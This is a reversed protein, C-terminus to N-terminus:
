PSVDEERNNQDVMVAKFNEKFDANGKHNLVVDAYSKIGAAHLDEIAKILEDKTGYKTRITGKQDFEGLDWLDYIGYGVDMDGGGKCMPPLWLADIGAKKLDKASKSLNKYFSGDGNTDWEFSQMMIENAM